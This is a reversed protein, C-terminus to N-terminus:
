PGVNLKEKWGMSKKLVQLLTRAAMWTSQVRAPHLELWSAAQMLLLFLKVPARRSGALLAESTVELRQSYRKFSAGLPRRKCARFSAQFLTPIAGSIANTAAWFIARGIARCATGSRPQYPVQFSALQLGLFPVELPEVLPAQVPSTHRM